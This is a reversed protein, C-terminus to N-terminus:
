FTIKLWRGREVMLCHSSLRLMSMARRNSRIHVKNLYITMSFERQLNNYLNCRNSSAIDARCSQQFTDMMIYLIVKSIKLLDPYMETNIM